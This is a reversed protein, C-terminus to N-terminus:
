NLNCLLFKFVVLNFHFILFLIMYSTYWIGLTKAAGEPYNQLLSSVVAMNSQNRSNSLENYLVYSLITKLNDENV